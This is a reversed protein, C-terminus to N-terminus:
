KLQHKLPDFYFTLGDLEWGKNKLSHFVKFAQEIDEANDVTGHIKSIGLKELTELGKKLLVSEIRLGSYQDIVYIDVMSAENETYNLDYTIHGCFENEIESVLILRNENILDEYYNKINDKFKPVGIFKYQEEQTANMYAQILCTVINDVDDLTAKRIVINEDYSNKEPLSLVENTVLLSSLFCGQMFNLNETLLNSYFNRNESYINLYIWQLPFDQKAYDIITDVISKLNYISLNSIFINFYGELNETILNEGKYFIVFIEEQNELKINFSYGGLEQQLNHHFIVKTNLNEFNMIPLNDEYRNINLNM